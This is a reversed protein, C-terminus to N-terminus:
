KEWIYLYLPTTKNQYVIFRTIKILDKANINQPDIGPKGIGAIQSSNITMNKDLFFYYDYQTDFLNKTKNYDDQSYIMSYLNELKTQDIKKNATLGIVVVNSSNWNSPYGQSLLNDAIINGDYSLQELNERAQSPQNLSYIFFITIGVLFLALGAMLDLSWIQGRSEIPKLSVFCPFSPTPSASMHSIPTEQKM